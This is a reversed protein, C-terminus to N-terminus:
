KLEKPPEPLPMWHTITQNLYWKTYLQKGNEDFGDTIDQFYDEIHIMEVSGINSFYGLASGDKVEPLRDEVNIWDNMTMKRKNKERLILAVHTLPIVM